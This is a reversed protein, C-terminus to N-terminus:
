AMRLLLCLAGAIALPVAVATPFIAEPAIEAVRAVHGPLRGAGLDVLLAALCAAMLSHAAGVERVVCPAAAV